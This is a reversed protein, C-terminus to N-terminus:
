FGGTRKGPSTSPSPPRKPNPVRATVSASSAPPPLTPAPAAMASAAPTASGHPLSAALSGANHSRVVLVLLWAWVIAAIVAGGAIRSPTVYRQLLAADKLLARLQAAAGTIAPGGRKAPFVIAPQAVPTPMTELSTLPARVPPPSQALADLAAMLERASAYRDEPRKQLLRQVVVHFQPDLQVVVADPLPPAEDLVHQRLVTVAGGQFPRSGTLMEFLIVGLAYLDSRGDIPRGLAQEPAMYDPTGMIAGLQTLADSSSGGMANVKAVGFDLVKVFDVANGSEVLMINEPKLDRHVVGRAHAATMAAVVGRLIRLARGQELRGGDLVSRLTRGGVYELVLFFAGDPLRGFDTARAVNEHEIVSAAIAEREFRAVFEPTSSWEKLLVKLAFRKRMHVHEVRYVVGMGGEGLREEIRYREAIVTGPALRDM